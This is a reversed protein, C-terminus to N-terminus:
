KCNLIANLIDLTTIVQSHEIVPKADNKLYNYLRKYYISYSTVPINVENFGADDVLIGPELKPNFNQDSPYFGHKLFEEQRDIGYSSYGAKSGNVIFRPPNIFIYPSYRIRVRTNGYLLKIDYYDEVVDEEGYKMGDGLYFNRQNGFDSIVKDPKGILSVIQDIFHVAHGFIYGDLKSGRIDVNDDRLQTHNSEIEMIKGLRESALVKRLAMFDSDFRRNQYVQVKVENIKALRVLEIYQESDSCVPKEIVVHKKAEIAMKAHEFHYKAPSSVIVLEVDDKLLEEISDYRTLESVHPYLMEFENNTPKYYGKIQYQNQDIFPLHYRNASKGFGIFATKIKM